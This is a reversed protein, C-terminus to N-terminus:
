DFNRIKKDNIDSSSSFEIGNMNLMRCTNFDVDISELYNIIETISVYRDQYAWKMWGLIMHQLERDFHKLVNQLPLKQNVIIIAIIKAVTNNRAGTPLYANIAFRIFWTNDYEEIDFNAFKNRQKECSSDAKELLSLELRNNIEVCNSYIIDKVVNHKFHPKFEMAVLHSSSTNLGMDTEPFNSYKELFARKYETIMLSDMADLGNISYIHIHPSRGNHDYVVFNYKNHELKRITINLCAMARDRSLTDYEIVIEDKAIERLIAEPKLGKKKKNTKNENVRAVQILEKSNLYKLINLKLKSMEIM